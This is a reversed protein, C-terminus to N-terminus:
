PNKTLTRQFFLLPLAVALAAGAFALLLSLPTFRIGLKGVIIMSFIVLGISGGFSLILTEWLSVGNEPNRFLAKRMSICGPSRKGTSTSVLIAPLKKESLGEKKWTM